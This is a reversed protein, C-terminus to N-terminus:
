PKTTNTRFETNIREVIAFEQAAEESRGLRRLALGLQYHADARNPAIAVASKLADVAEGFRNAIVFARGLAWRSEFNQPDLRISRELAAIADTTRGQKVLLAGLGLQGIASESDIKILEQYEAMAAESEGASELSTGLFFRTEARRPNLRAAERLERVAGSYDKMSYLVRGLYFHADFSAPTLAIAQSLSEIAEVNATGKSALIVGLLTHAEAAGANLRLARRVEPEAEGARGANLLSLAHLYAAEVSGTQRSALEAFTEVADPWRKLKAYALGLDQWANYLSPDRRLADKFDRIASEFDDRDTALVASMYSVRPDSPRADKLLNLQNTAHANDGLARYASILEFRADYQGPELELARRLYTVADAVQDRKGSRLLFRGLQYNATFNKEDLKLAAREATMAEDVRGLKWLAFGLNAQYAAVNPKLSVARRLDDCAQQYHGFRMRALARLNLAETDDPNTALKASTESEVREARAETTSFREVHSRQQATTAPSTQAGAFGACIQLVPILQLLRKKM